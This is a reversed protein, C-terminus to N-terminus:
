KGEAKAKIKEAIEVGMHPDGLTGVVVEVQSGTDTKKINVKIVAGNAKTGQAVGDIGTSSATVDNLGLDTLVAKAANASAATDASVNTWQSHYDSKVSADDHSACGVLATAIAGVLVFCIVSKM